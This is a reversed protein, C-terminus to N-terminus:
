ELTVDLNLQLADGVLQHQSCEDMRHTRIASLYEMLIPLM